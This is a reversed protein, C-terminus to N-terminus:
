ISGDASAINTALNVGKPYILTLPNEAYEILTLAHEPIQEVYDYLTEVDGLLIILSKEEKRKKVSFIKEVANRNTADCGIGWITDTPYLIIGGKKLTALWKLIDNEFEM